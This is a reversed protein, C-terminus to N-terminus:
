SSRQRAKPPGIIESTIIAQVLDKKTKPVFSGIETQKIKDMSNKPISHSLGRTASRNQDFTPRGTSMENKAEVTKISTRSEEKKVRTQQKEFSPMSNKTSTTKENLQQFVESAFDELSRTSKRQDKQNPLEFTNVTPGNNFPPMSKQEKKQKDGSFIAKIIYIIVAM